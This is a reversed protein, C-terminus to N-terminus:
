VGFVGFLFYVNLIDHLSMTCELRITPFILMKLMPFPQQPKLHLTFDVHKCRAIRRTFINLRNFSFYVIFNFELRYLTVKQLYM